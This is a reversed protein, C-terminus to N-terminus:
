QNNNVFGFCEPSAEFIMCTWFGICNQDVCDEIRDNAAEQNENGCNNEISERCNSICNSTQDSSPDTNACEFKKTCYHECAVHSDYDDIKEEADEGCSSILGVPFLLMFVAFIFNSQGHM